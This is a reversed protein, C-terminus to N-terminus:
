KTLLFCQFILFIHSKGLICFLIVTAARQAEISLGTDHTISDSRPKAINPHVECHAAAMNQFSFDKPFWSIEYKSFSKSM